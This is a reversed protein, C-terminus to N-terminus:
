SKGLLLRKCGRSGKLTVSKVGVLCSFLHRAGGGWQPAPPGLGCGGGGWLWIHIM